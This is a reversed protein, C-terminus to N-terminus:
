GDEFSTGPEISPMTDGRRPCLLPSWPGVEVKKGTSKKGRASVRRLILCNM